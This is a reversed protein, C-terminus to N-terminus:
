TEALQEEGLSVYSWKRGISDIYFGVERQTVREVGSAGARLIGESDPMLIRPGATPSYDYHSFHAIKGDEADTHAFMRVHDSIVKGDYESPTLGTCRHVFSEFDTNGKEIAFRSLKEGSNPVFLTIGDSRVITGRRQMLAVIGAAKSRRWVKKQEQLDEKSPKA